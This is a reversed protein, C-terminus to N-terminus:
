LDEVSQNIVLVAFFLNNIYMFHETTESGQDKKNIVM